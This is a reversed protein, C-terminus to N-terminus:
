NYIKQREWCFKLHLFLQPNNLIIYIYIYIVHVFKRMPRHASALGSVNSPTQPTLLQCIRLWKRINGINWHGLSTTLTSLNTGAPGPNSGPRKWTLSDMVCSVKWKEIGAQSAAQISSLTKGLIKKSKKQLIKQYDM